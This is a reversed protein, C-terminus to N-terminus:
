SVKREQTRSVSVNKNPYRPKWRHLSEENQSKDESVCINYYRPLTQDQEKKEHRMQEVMSTLQMKLDMIEDNKEELREKAKFAISAAIQEAKIRRDHEDHQSSVQSSLTENKKMEGLAHKLSKVEEEKDEYADKYQFLSSNTTAIQDLLDQRSRLLKDNEDRHDKSGKELESLVIQFKSLKEELEENLNTIEHIKHRYGREKQTEVVRSEKLVEAESKNRNRDKDYFNGNNIMNEFNRVFEECEGAIGDIEDVKEENKNHHSSELAQLSQIHLKLHEIEILDIEKTHKSQILQSELQCRLNQIENQLELIIENSIDSLLGNEIKMEENKEKELALVSNSDQSVKNNVSSNNILATKLLNQKEKMLCSIEEELKIASKRCRRLEDQDVKERTREIELYEKSKKLALIQKKLADKNTESAINAKRLIDLESQLNSQTARMTQLMNMSKEKDNRLRKCEDILELNEKTIREMQVKAADIRDEQLSEASLLSETHALSMKIRENEVKENQLAEEIEKKKDIAINLNKKLKDTNFQFRQIKENCVLQCSELEAQIRANENAIPESRLILTENEQNLEDLLLKYKLIEEEHNKKKKLAIKKSEDLSKSLKERLDSVKKNESELQVCCQELETCREELKNKENELKRENQRLHITDKKERDMDLDKERILKQLQNREVEIRNMKSKMKKLQIISDSANTQLKEKEESTSELETRLESIINECKIQNEGSDSLEHHLSDIEDIYTKEREETEHLKDKIFKLDDMKKQCKQLSKKLSNREVSVAELQQEMETAYSFKDENQKILKGELDHLRKKLGDNQEMMATEHLSIKKMLLELELIREDKSQFTDIMENAKEYKKKLQELQDKLSENENNTDDLCKHLRKTEHKGAQIEVMRSEETSQFTAQKNKLKTSMEKQMYEYKTQAEKLGAELEVQGSKYVEKEKTINKNSKRLEKCESRCKNIDVNKQNLEVKIEQIDKDARKLQNMLEENELITKSQESALIRVKNQLTEYRKQISKTEDLNNRNETLELELAQKQLSSEKLKNQLNKVDQTLTQMTHEAQELYQILEDRDKDGNCKIDELSELSNELEQQLSHIKKNDIDHQQKLNKIEDELEQIQRLLASLSQETKMRSKDENQKGIEDIQDLLSFDFDFAISSHESPHISPVPSMLNLKKKVPTTTKTVSEVNSQKSDVNNNHVELITAMLQALRQRPDALTNQLLAGRAQTSINRNKRASHLQHITEQPYKSALADAASSLIKRSIENSVVHSSVDSSNTIPTHTDSLLSGNLNNHYKSHFPSQATHGAKRLLRNAYNLTQLSQFYSKKAPCVTAIMIARNRHNGLSRKLLRTLTSERFSIASSHMANTHQHSHNLILSRLLAGLAALSKRISAARREHKINAQPTVKRNSNTDYEETATALEVLQILTSRTKMQHDGNDDYEDDIWEVNVNVMIHANHRSSKYEAAAKRVCLQFTDWTDLFVETLNQVYAGKRDVHELLRLKPEANGFHIRDWLFDNLSDEDIIQLFSLHIKISETNSLLGKIILGLLGFNDKGHIKESETLSDGFLTFSKGSSQHGYAFVTSNTKRLTADDIVANALSFLAQENSDSDLGHQSKYFKDPWLIDDFHYRRTWDESPIDKLIAAARAAAVTVDMSVFNGFANPNVVVMQGTEMSRTRNLSLDNIDDDAQDVLPFLCQSMSSESNDIQIQSTENVDEENKDQYPIPKVRVFVSVKRFPALTLSVQSAPSSFSTQSVPSSKTKLHDPSPTQFTSSFSTSKAEKSFPSVSLISQIPSGRRENPDEYENTECENSDNLNSSLINTSTQEGTSNSSNTTKSSLSLRQLPEENVVNEDDEEENDSLLLSVDSDDEQLQLNQSNTIRNIKNHDIDTGGFDIKVANSTEERIINDDTVLKVHEDKELSSQEDYYSTGDNSYEAVGSLYNEINQIHEKASNLSESGPSSKLTINGVDNLEDQGSSVLNDDEQLYSLEGSNSAYSNKTSIPTLSAQGINDDGDSSIDANTHPMTTPVHNNEFGDDQFLLDEEEEVEETLFTGIWEAM